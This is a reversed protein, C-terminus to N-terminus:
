QEGQRLGAGIAFAALWKEMREWPKEFADWCDLLKSQESADPYWNEQYGDDEDGDEREVTM